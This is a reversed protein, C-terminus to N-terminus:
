NGSRQELRQCRQELRQCRVELRQCRVELRLCRQQELRQCRQQELGQRSVNKVNKRTKFAKASRTIKKLIGCIEQDVSDNVDFIVSSESKSEDSEPESKSEDSKSEDSKSEDSDPEVLEFPNWFKEEKYDWLRMRNDNINIDDDFASFGESFVPVPHTM